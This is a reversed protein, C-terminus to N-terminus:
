LSVGFSLVSRYVLYQEQMCKVEHPCRVIFSVKGAWHNGILPIGSYTSYM